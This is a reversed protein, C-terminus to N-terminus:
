CLRHPHQTFQGDETRHFKEYGIASLATQNILYKCFLKLYIQKVKSFHSDINHCNCFVGRIWINGVYGSRKWAPKWISQM